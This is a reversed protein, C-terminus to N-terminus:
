PYSPDHQVVLFKWGSTGIPSISSIFSRISTFHYNQNSLNVSNFGSVSRECKLYFLPSLQPRFALQNVNHFFFYSLLSLFYTLMNVLAQLLFDCEFMGETAM